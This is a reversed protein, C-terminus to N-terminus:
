LEGAVRPQFVERRRLVFRQPPALRKIPGEAGDVAPLGPLSIQEFSNSSVRRGAAHSSSRHGGRAVSTGRGPKSRETEIVDEDRGNGREAVFLRRRHLALRNGQNEGAAVQERLRCGAGALRGSERQGQNLPEAVVDLRTGGFLTSAGPRPAHHQHRRAFKGHLDGLRHVLVGAAASEGDHRHIAACRHHLLDAGEIAAGVDDDAGGPAHEIVQPPLRQREVRDGDEHQVLGVLHEVHAEGLIEVGDELRRRLRALRCEKGRRHRRPQPRDGLPMEFLRLPDLDRALLDRGAPNGPHSLDDVEDRACVLRRRQLTHQVHLTRCRRQHEAARPELDVRQDLRQVRVPVPGLRNVAAHLLPLALRHHRRKRDAFASRRIAVSTAARPSSM